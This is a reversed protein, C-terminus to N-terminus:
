VIGFFSSGGCKKSRYWSDTSIASLIDARRVAALANKMVTFPAKAERRPKAILVRPPSGELWFKPIIKKQM